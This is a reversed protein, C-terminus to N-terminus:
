RRRPPMADLEADWRPRHIRAWSRPVDGTLMARLAVPEALAKLIHGGILFLLTLALTDHVFTAGTRWADPFPDFWKMISGTMLMVPIAGAVFIANGKQGPHFKGMEVHPDRGLSRWWRLDDASWRALRRVDRRLGDRWRGAYGLLLPLPLALGCWVHIDKVVERRGVLTSLPPVYLTMGTALLTLFLGANLWHVAREARDFRVVTDGHVTDAAALSV